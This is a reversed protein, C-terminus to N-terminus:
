KKYVGVDVFYRVMAKYIEVDETVLRNLYYFEGNPEIRIVEKNDLYFIMNGKNANQEFIKM